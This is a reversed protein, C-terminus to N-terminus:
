SSSIPPDSVRSATLDGVADRERWRRGELVFAMGGFFILGLGVIWAEQNSNPWAGIFLILGAVGSCVSVIATAQRGPARLRGIAFLKRVIVLLTIAAVVGIFASVLM